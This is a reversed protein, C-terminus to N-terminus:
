PLELSLQTDSDAGLEEDLAEDFHERYIADLYRETLAEYDELTRILGSASDSLWGAVEVRPRDDPHLDPCAGRFATAEAQEAVLALLSKLADRLRTEDLEQRRIEDFPSWGTPGRM